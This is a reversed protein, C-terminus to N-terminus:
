NQNSHFVLKYLLVVEPCFCSLFFAPCSYSLFFILLVCEECVCYHRKEWLLAGAEYQGKCGGVKIDGMDLLGAKCSNAKKSGEDPSM